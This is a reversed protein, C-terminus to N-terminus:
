PVPARLSSIREIPNCVNRTVTKAILNSEDTELIEKEWRYVSEINRVMNVSTVLKETVLTRAIEKTERSNRTTTYTFSINM